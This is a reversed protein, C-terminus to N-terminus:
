LIDKSKQQEGSLPPLGDLPDGMANLVRGIIAEGVPVEIGRHTRTVAMGKVLRLDGRLNLCLAEGGPELHDVLLQTGYGNGVEILESVAPLDSDFRVRVIIEKVSVVIGAM